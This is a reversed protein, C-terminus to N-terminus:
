LDIFEKESASSESIEGVLNKLMLEKVELPKQTHGLVWMLKVFAVEPLMDECYIVGRSSVERLNSYVYPHVRGFLCQTTMAMAINRDRAKEIYPILSTEKIATPVHGLATGEFVVGKYGENMYFDMIKPNMNPHIKVLAVKDEMKSDVVVKSSDRQPLNSLANVVGDKSISAVPKTNISRFADRRSTHMKRVKTGLHALCSDDSLGGHMVLYVGSFGSAAFATSCILNLFSDSSGRDSSRQSGTFVVPKGLNTLMFSLAATSYHMTDTGHTVVVGDSGSNLEDAVEHAIKVWLDKNMDESMVNMLFRSKMNAINSLEPAVEVMDEATYSAYVGGTRYDLKSSITGGTSLISIVPKGARLALSSKSAEPKKSYAEVLNMKIINSTDIGINYGNSLKLVIHNKNALNPRPMLIGEYVSNKLEVRIKDGIQFGGM